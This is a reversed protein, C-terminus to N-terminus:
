AWTAARGETEYGMEHGAEHGARRRAGPERMM